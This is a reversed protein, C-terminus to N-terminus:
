SILPPLDISRTPGDPCRENRRLYSTGTKSERTTESQFSDTPIIPQQCISHCNPNESGSDTPTGCCNESDAHHSAEGLIGAHEAQCTISQLLFLMLMATGLLPRLAITFFRSM